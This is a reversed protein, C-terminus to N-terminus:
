SQLRYCSQNCVPISWRHMSCPANSSGDDNPPESVKSWVNFAEMDFTGSDARQQTVDASDLMQPAQPIPMKILMDYAARGSYQLVREGM